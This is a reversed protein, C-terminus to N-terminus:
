YKQYIEYDTITFVLKSKNYNKLREDKLPITGNTYVVIKSIKTNILFFDIIEYIEKNM